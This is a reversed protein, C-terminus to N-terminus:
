TRWRTLLKPCGADWVHVYDFSTAAVLSLREKYGSRDERFSFVVTSNSPDNPSGPVRAKFACLLTMSEKSGIMVPSDEWDIQGSDAVHWVAKAVGGKAGVLPKNLVRAGRVYGSRIGRNHVRIECAFNYEHSSFRPRYDGAYGVKLTRGNYTFRPGRLFTMYYACLAILLSCLGIVVGVEV